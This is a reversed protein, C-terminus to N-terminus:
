LFCKTGTIRAAPCSVPLSPLLMVLQSTNNLMNFVSLGLSDWTHRISTVRVQAIGHPTLIADEYAEDLYGAPDKEGAVNHEGQAHRVFHIVKTRQVAPGPLRLAPPLRTKEKTKRSYM